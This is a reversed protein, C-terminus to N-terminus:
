PTPEDTAKLEKNPTEATLRDGTFPNYVYNGPFEEKTKPDVKAPLFCVLPLRWTFEKQDLKVTFAGKAKATVYRQGNTDKGKFVIFAMSQGVQGLMNAFM